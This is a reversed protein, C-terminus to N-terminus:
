LFFSSISNDHSAHNKWIRKQPQHHSGFVSSDSIRRFEKVRIRRSTFEKFKEVQEKSSM